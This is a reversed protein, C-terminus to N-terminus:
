LGGGDYWGLGPRGPGGAPLMMSGGREADSLIAYAEAVLKFQEESGGAKDPHLRIALQRYAKKIAALDADKTLGLRCYLDASSYNLEM